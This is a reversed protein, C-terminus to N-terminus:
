EFDSSAKQWIGDEKLHFGWFAAHLNVLGLLLVIAHLVSEALLTVEESCSSCESICLPMETSLQRLLHCRRMKMVWHLVQGYEGLICLKKKKKLRVKPQGVRWDTSGVKQYAQLKDNLKVNCERSKLTRKLDQYETQTHGLVTWNNETPNM